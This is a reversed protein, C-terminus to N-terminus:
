ILSRDFMRWISVDESQMQVEQIKSAWIRFMQVRERSSNLSKGGIAVASSWCAAKHTFRIQSM